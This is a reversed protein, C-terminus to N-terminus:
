KPPWVDTDHDPHQSTKLKALDEATRDDSTSHSPLSPLRDFWSLKSEIGVQETPPAAEPNDLTGIAIDYYDFGDELMYLPTGCRSCFGRAVVPSSRFEDPKARTWTMNALPVTVLPAGWSGFAKQCMRCHCIGARGLPGEVRFRVAGCQCGGTHIESM